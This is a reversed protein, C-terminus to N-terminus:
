LNFIEVLDGFVGNYFWESEQCFIGADQKDSEFHDGKRESFVFDIGAIPNLRGFYDANKNLANGATTDELKKDLIDLAEYRVFEYIEEKIKFIKNQKLIKKVESQFKNDKIFEGPIRCTLIEPNLSNELSKILILKISDCYSANEVLNNGRYIAAKVTTQVARTMFDKSSKLSTPIMTIFSEDMRILDIMTDQNWNIFFRGLFDSLNNGEKYQGINTTIHDFIMKKAERSFEANTRLAEKAYLAHKIHCKIVEMMFDANEQLENPIIYAPHTESKVGELLMKKFDPHNVFDSEKIGSGWFFDHVNSEANKSFYNIFAKKAKQIFEENKQLESTAYRAHKPNWEIIELMFDANEQLEKPIKDAGRNGSKIINLLMSAFDPQNIFDSKKFYTEAGKFLGDIDCEPNKEVYYIFVKKAKEALEKKQQPNLKMYESKAFTKNTELNKKIEQLQQYDNDFDKM